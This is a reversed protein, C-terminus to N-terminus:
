AGALRDNRDVIEDPRRVEAETKPEALDKTEALDGFSRASSRTAASAVIMPRAAAAAPRATRETTASSKSHASAAGIMAVIERETYHSAVERVVRVKGLGIPQEG